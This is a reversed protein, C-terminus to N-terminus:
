QTAYGPFTPVARGDVPNGSSPAHGLGDLFVEFNKRAMVERDVVM